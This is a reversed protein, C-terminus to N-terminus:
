SPWTSSVPRIGVLQGRSVLEARRGPSKLTRAHTVKKIYLIKWLPILHPIGMGPNMTRLRGM